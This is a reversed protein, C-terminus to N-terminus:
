RDRLAALERRRSRGGRRRTGAIRRGLLYDVVLVVGFALLYIQALDLLVNRWLGM